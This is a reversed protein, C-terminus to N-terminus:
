DIMIEDAFIWAKEGAGPHWDPCIGMNDAQIRVYRAKVPKFEAIFDKIVTEEEKPSIENNIKEITKFTTGDMSYSFEVSLPQFIWSDNRQYFGASIKYIPTVKKMDVTVEMDDGEFGLWCGDNYNDSGRIGDFLTHDGDGPYRYSYPMAYTIEKGIGKHLYVTKESIGEEITDNIFIGAKVTTNAILKVPESYVNSKTDPDKGNITYHIVPKYIESGLCVHMIGKVSDFRTKIKVMYSGKCYNVNMLDLRKFHQQLRANFDNWDRLKKETWAVEALATMRPIAMYEAYSPTAIYETWVNGQTGLIHIAENDNLERPTPDFSYVKKLTTYGGIAKPQYDPDAQYYDFYCYSVPCMIVDHGMRAAEIGGEFGRWSM